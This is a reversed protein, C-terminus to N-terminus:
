QAAARAAKNRRAIGLADQKRKAQAALLRPTEGTRMFLALDEADFRWQNGIRVADLVGDAALRRLTPASLGARQIAEAM